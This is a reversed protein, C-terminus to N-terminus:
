RTSKRDSPSTTVGLESVYRSVAGKRPARHARSQNSGRRQDSGRGHPLTEEAIGSTHVEAAKGLFQLLGHPGALSLGDAVAVLLNVDLVQQRREQLLFASQCTGDQRAGTDVHVRQALFKGAFQFPQRFDGSAGAPDILDVDCRTLEGKEIQWEPLAGLLSAVEQESLTRMPDAGIM